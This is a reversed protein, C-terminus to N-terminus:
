RNVHVRRVDPFHIEARRAVLGIRLQGTGIHPVAVIHRITSGSAVQMQPFSRLAIAELEASIAGTEVQLFNRRGTAPTEEPMEEPTEAVV